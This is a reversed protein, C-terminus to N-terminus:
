VLVVKLTIFWNTFIVSPLWLYLVTTPSLLFIMRPLLARHQHHLLEASATYRQAAMSHIERGPNSQFEDESGSGPNLGSRRVGGYDSQKVPDYWSLCVLSPTM